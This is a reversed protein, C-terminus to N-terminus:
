KEPGSAGSRRVRPRGPRLPPLVAKRLLHGPPVGLADALAVLTALTVNEVGREISRLHVPGLGAKEALMEQTLSRTKRLRRINAALYSQVQAVRAASM